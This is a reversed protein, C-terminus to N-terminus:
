RYARPARDQARSHTYRAPRLPARCLLVVCRSAGRHQACQMLRDAPQGRRVSHPEAVQWSPPNSVHKPSREREPQYGEDKKLYRGRGIRALTRWRRPRARPRAGLSDDPGEDPDAGAEAGPHQQSEIGEIIRDVAIAFHPQTCDGPGGSAPEGGPQEAFVDTAFRTGASLTPTSRRGIQTASRRAHNKGRRRRLVRQEAPADAVDAASGQPEIATTTM